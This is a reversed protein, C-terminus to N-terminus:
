IIEDRNMDLYKREEPKPAAVTTTNLTENAGTEQENYSKRVPLKGRGRERSNADNSYRSRTPSRSRSPSRSERRLPHHLQNKAFRDFEEDMDYAGVYNNQKLPQPVHNYARPQPEKMASGASGIPEIHHQKTLQAHRRELSKQNREGSRAERSRSREM